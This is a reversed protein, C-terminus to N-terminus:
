MMGLKVLTEVATDTSLQSKTESLFFNSAELDQADFEMEDELSQQLAFM